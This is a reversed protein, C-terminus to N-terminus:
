ESKWLLQWKRIAGSVIMCLSTENNKERQQERKCHISYFNMTSHGAKKNMESTGSIVTFFRFITAHVHIMSFASSVPLNSSHFHPLRHMKVIRIEVM